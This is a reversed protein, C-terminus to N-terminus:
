VSVVDVAAKEEEKKQDDLLAEGNQNEKITGVSELTTWFGRGMTNCFDKIISRTDNCFGEEGTLCWGRTRDGDDGPPMYYIMIGMAAFGFFIAVFDKVMCYCDEEPNQNDSKQGSNDAQAATVTAAAMLMFLYATLRDNTYTM